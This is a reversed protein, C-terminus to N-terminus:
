VSPIRYIEPGHFLEAESMTSVRPRVARFTPAPFLIDYLVGISQLRTMSSSIKRKSSSIPWSLSTAKRRWTSWQGCQARHAAVVRMVIVTRRLRTACTARLGAGLLNRVFIRAPKGCRRRDTQPVRECSNACVRM